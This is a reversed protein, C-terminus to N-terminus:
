ASNMYRLSAHVFADIAPATVTLGVCRSAGVAEDAAFCMLAPANQTTHDDGSERPLSNWHCGPSM